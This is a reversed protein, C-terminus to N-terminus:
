FFYYQIIVLEHQWIFYLHFLIIYFYIFLYKFIITMIVRWIFYIDMLICQYLNIIIVQIFLYQYTRGKSVSFNWYIFIYTLLSISLDVSFFQHQWLQQLCSGSIFALILPYVRTLFSINAYGLTEGGLCKNNASDIKLVPEFM